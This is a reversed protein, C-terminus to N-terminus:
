VSTSFSGTPEMVGTAPNFTLQTSTTDTSSASQAGAGKHHGGGHHRAKQVQGSGNQATKLNEAIQQLTQTSQGSSSIPSIVSM